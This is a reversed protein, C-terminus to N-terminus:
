FPNAQKPGVVGVDKMKLDANALSRNIQCESGKCEYTLFQMTACNQIHTLIARYVKSKTECQCRYTAHRKCETTVGVLLGCSALVPWYYYAGFGSSDLSNLQPIECESSLDALIDAFGKWEIKDKKRCM